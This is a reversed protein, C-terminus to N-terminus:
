KYQDVALEYHGQFIYANGLNSYARREASKDGFEKAVSLRQVTMCM